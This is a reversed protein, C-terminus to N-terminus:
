LPEINQVIANLFAVRPAPNFTAVEVFPVVQFKPVIGTLADHYLSTHFPEMNQANASTLLMAATEDFPSLQVREVKGAVAVHPANLQFPENNQAIAPASDRLVTAAVEGSPIVQDICVIGALVAQYPIAFLPIFLVLGIHHATAPPTLPTEVLIAAVIVVHALKKVVGVNVPVSPIELV